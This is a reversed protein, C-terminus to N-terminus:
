LIHYHYVSAWYYHISHLRQPTTVSIFGSCVTECEIDKRTCTMRGTHRSIAAVCVRLKLMYGICEDEYLM